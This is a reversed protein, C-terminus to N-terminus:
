FESDRLTQKRYEDIFVTMLEPMVNRYLGMKFYYRGASPYGTTANEANATVGRYDAILQQNLWVKVHGAPDPTFRAQVRFDLWRNRFEAKKEFLTSRKGGLDQTVSMVGGIYRLALVPSDDSCPGQENPCFQKWQAIVLRVSVIPFDQPFFMSFSYEYPEEQKATLARAEMLEDRESDANGHQGAEFKDRPHVSIAVAQHGARVIQSEMVVSGSEFRSQEWLGSLTATEFGDYIDLSAVSPATQASSAQARIDMSLLLCVILLSAAHVDAMRM